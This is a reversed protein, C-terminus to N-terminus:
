KRCGTQGPRFRLAARRSARSSRHSVCPRWIPVSCDCRLESLGTDCHSFKLVNPLFALCCKYLRSPRPQEVVDAHDHFTITELMGRAEFIAQHLLRRFKTRLGPRQLGSGNLLCHDSLRSLDLCRWYTQPSREVLERSRSSRSFTAPQFWWWWWFRRRGHPCKQVSPVRPMNKNFAATQGRASLVTFSRLGMVAM